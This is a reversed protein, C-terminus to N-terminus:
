QHMKVTYAVLAAQIENNWQERWNKSGPNILKNTIQQM